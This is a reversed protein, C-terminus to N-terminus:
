NQRWSTRPTFIGGFVTDLHVVKPDYHGAFLPTRIDAVLLAPLLDTLEAQVDVTSSISDLHGAHGQEAQNM